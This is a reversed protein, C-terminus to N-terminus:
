LRVYELSLGVLVADGAMDDSAHDADRGLMVSVRRRASANTVTLTITTEATQDLTGPAASAASTAAANFTNDKDDTSGDVTPALSGKWVVSGTTATDARWKVRLTGGGAYTDPLLFNWLLHEDTTADFLWVLHTVKPTNTTQAASSVDLRPAPANNGSGSGDAPRAGDLSLLVTGIGGAGGLEISRPIM